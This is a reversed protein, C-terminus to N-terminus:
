SHEALVLQAFLAVIEDIKTQTAQSITSLETEISQKPYSQAM